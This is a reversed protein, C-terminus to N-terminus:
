AMTRNELTDRVKQALANLSFPKALFTTGLEQIGHRLVTDDTYGSIHITKLGPRLGVLLQSLERGSMKPMVVDTILLDIHAQQSAISLAQQGSGAALVSYGLGELYECIAERLPQEDEVLLLTESGKLLAESSTPLVNVIEEKSKPLYVTFCAGQGVESDILIYGGSKKVIGYVVALGLGTGKGVEKTTSFPEFIQEQVEKRIGTGTDTVSLKVYEGPVVYPPVGFHGTEVVANGTAITLTGGQPMADRSNVCLNMLVQGIQDPDVKVAWLSEASDVRFEVDEGILRQLMKATEAVVLNLDLVVPSIVQKRSFALMQGTLSAGRKVTKLIAETKAQLPDRAPLSRHMIETYSQIVMLINNFDHAIGGALRGIAEMKQAQNLARNTSTLEAEYRKRQTIEEAVGVIRILQGEQDRIPFARDRIWKEQGDPTRIRYESEVPEGKIQRALTSHAREVDDPHIAETWSMPREYLSACTRGWVQEYAPSVYLIEDTSAPMIWFVECINEALQRFREESSQLAREAQKRASIDRFFWVRGLYEGNQNRLGTSHRELTRNDKLGIECDDWADPQNYLERVRNLFAEPDKVRNVVEALLPQYPVGVVTDAFGNPATSSPVQWIDLFRQNHSVVIGHDNVVLIGDLSVENIGRIVSLQFQRNIAEADVAAKAELLTSSIRRVVIFAGVSVLSALGLLAFSVFRDFRFTNAAAEKSKELFTMQIDQLKDTINDLVHYIPMAKDAELHSAAEVNGNAGLQEIRQLLSQWEATGRVVVDIADREEQSSALPKLEAVDKEILAVRDTFLKKSAEVGAANKEHTYLLVGRDAALMDSVAMNIDGALWIKRATSDVAVEFNRNMSSLGRVSMWSQIAVMIFIAAFCSTIKREVTWFNM